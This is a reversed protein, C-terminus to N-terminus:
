HRLMYQAINYIVIGATVAVNLSHKTGYQPLELCGDCVDIAEQQVGNVENGMIIAYKVGAEPIFDDLATSGTAQEIALIRYGEERLLKLADLTEDFQQWDVSFEAGLASKHIEANPPTATIGCLMIREVRYADSTRFISGVNNLSRIGDLVVVLPIKDAIKFEDTSIRIIEETILKKM